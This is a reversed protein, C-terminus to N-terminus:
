FSAMGEGFGSMEIGPYGGHATKNGFAVGCKKDTRSIVFNLINDVYDFSVALATHLRNRGRHSRFSLCSDETSISCFNGYATCRDENSVDLM